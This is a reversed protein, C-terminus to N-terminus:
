SKRVTSNLWSKILAALVAPQEIPIMHGSDNVVELTSNRIGQHLEAAEDLSRLRDQEGAVILTPCRIERLREYDSERTVGSQRLFVERGLRVGMDQIRSILEADSRQPSLSAKIAVRSLGRFPNGALAAASAKRRTEEATDARSSTAILILASVRDPAIRVIERSVYGGLSFGVLVFHPPADLIARTAMARISDDLGLDVHSFPGLEAAEREFDSWLEKDTMFGPVLVLAM